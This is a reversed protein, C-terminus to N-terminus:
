LEWLYNSAEHNGGIFLTPFPAVKEGSYYKWFSNMSRYKPPVSLSELDKENRVAQFDGCCILLDIKTREVQQLHLLTAYVNDLDGHMCGEIAIKM